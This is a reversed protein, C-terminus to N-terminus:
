KRTGVISLFKRPSTGANATAHPLYWPFQYIDGAQWDVDVRGLQFFQGPQRDEAFYIYRLIDDYNKIKREHETLYESFFSKHRGIHLPIVYGPYQIRMNIKVTDLQLVTKLKVATPSDSEIRYNHTAANDLEHVKNQFKAKHLSKKAIEDHPLELYLNTIKKCHYDTNQYLKLALTEFDNSKVFDLDIM